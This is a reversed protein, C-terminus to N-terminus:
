AHVAVVGHRLLAIAVAAAAAAGLTLVLAALAPPADAHGTLAWRVAAVGYFLPNAHSLAAPLLAPPTFVGGVLALPTIFFTTAMAVHDNRSALQGVALGVAAFLMAVLGLAALAALPHAPQLGLLLWTVAALVVGVLLARFVAGLAYGLALELPGLPALALEDISGTFRDGFISEAGHGYAAEVVHLAILGPALYAAYSLGDIAGLQDGLGLGFAFLALLTAALPPWVVEHVSGLTRRIERWALMATGVLNM